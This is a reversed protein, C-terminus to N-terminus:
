ESMRVPLPDAASSVACLSLAALVAKMVPNLATGPLARLSFARLAIPFRTM